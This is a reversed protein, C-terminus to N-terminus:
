VLDISKSDIYLAGPPTFYVENSNFYSNISPKLDVPTLFWFLLRILIFDVLVKTINLFTKSHLHYNLAWIPYIYISFWQSNLIEPM